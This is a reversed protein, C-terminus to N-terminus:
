DEWKWKTSACSNSANYNVWDNKLQQINLSNDIVNNLFLTNYIKLILIKIEIKEKM